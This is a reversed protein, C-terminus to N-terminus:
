VGMETLVANAQENPTGAADLGLYENAQRLTEKIGTSADLSLEFQIRTAKEKLSLEATAASSASLAAAIPKEPAPAPALEELIIARVREYEGETVLGNAKLENLEALREKAPRPAFRAGGADATGPRSGARSSPRSPRLSGALSPHASLPAM